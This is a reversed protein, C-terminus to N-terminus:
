SAADLKTDPGNVVGLVNVDLMFLGMDGYYNWEGPVYWADPETGSPVNNSESKNMELTPGASPPGQIPSQQFRQRKQAWAMWREDTMGYTLPRVNPSDAQRLPWNEFGPYDPGMVALSSYDDNNGTGVNVAMLGKVHIRPYSFISM